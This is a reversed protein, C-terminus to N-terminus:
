ILSAGWWMQRDGSRADRGGSPRVPLINAVPCLRCPTLVIAPFAIRRGSRPRGGLMAQLERRRGPSSVLGCAGGAAPRAMAFLILDSPLRRSLAAPDLMPRWVEFVPARNYLFRSPVRAEAESVANGAPLDPCLRPRMAFMLALVHPTPCHGAILAREALGDLDSRGQRAGDVGPLTVAACGAREITAKGQVADALPQTREDPPSQVAAVQLLPRAALLVLRPRPTNGGTRVSM